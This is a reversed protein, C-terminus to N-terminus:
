ISADENARSDVTKVIEDKEVDVIAVAKGLTDSVYM